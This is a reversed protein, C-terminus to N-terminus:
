FNHGLRSRLSDVTLKAVPAHSRDARDRSTLQVHTDTWFFPQRPLDAVPETRATIDIETFFNVLFMKHDLTLPLV